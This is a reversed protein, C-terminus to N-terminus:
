SEAISYLHHKVLFIPTDAKTYATSIGGTHYGEHFQITSCSQKKTIHELTSYQVKNFVEYQIMVYMFYVIDEAPGSHSIVHYYPGSLFAVKKEHLINKM